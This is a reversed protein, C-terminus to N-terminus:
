DSFGEERYEIVENEEVVPKTGEMLTEVSIWGNISSINDLFVNIEIRAHFEQYYLRGILTM